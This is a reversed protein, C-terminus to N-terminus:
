NLQLDFVVKDLADINFYEVRCLKIKQKSVESTNNSANCIVIPNPQIAGQLALADMFSQVQTELRLYEDYTGKKFNEDQSMNFLSEKIYALLESNHIQQLASRTKIGTTNGYITFGDAKKIIPNWRFLEMAKLETTDPNIEIATINDIYGSSNAVVDWAFTKAIFANSVKPAIVSVNPGEVIGSGFYFCLESGITSKNLFKTSFSPNGGDKLYNLDFVNDPSQKFLPNTSKELDEIFPENIICRVFKNCKDLEYALQGFQSKYGGEIFSKFADVVYRIGSFNKM